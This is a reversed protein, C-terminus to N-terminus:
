AAAIDHHAGREGTFVEHTRPSSNNPRTAPGMATV